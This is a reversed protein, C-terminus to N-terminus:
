RVLVPSAAAMVHYMVTAMTRLPATTKHFTDAPGGLQNVFGPRTLSMYAMSAILKM